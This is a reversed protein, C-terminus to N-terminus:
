FLLSETGEEILIRSTRIHEKFANLFPLLHKAYRLRTSIDAELLPKKFVTKSSTEASYVREVDDVTYGVIEKEESVLCLRYNKSVEEQEWALYWFIQTHYARVSIFAAEHREEAPKPLSEKEEFIKYRFPFHAKLERLSTELERIKNSASDLVKFLTKAELVLDRLSSDISSTENSELATKHLKSM